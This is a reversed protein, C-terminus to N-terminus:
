GWIRYAIFICINVASAILSCKIALIVFYTDPKIRRLEALVGLATFVAIAASTVIMAEFM